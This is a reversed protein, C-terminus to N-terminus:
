LDTDSVSWTNDVVCPGGSSDALLMGKGDPGSVSRLRVDSGGCTVIIGRSAGRCNGSADFTVRRQWETLPEVAKGKIFIDCGSGDKGSQVLALMTGLRTRSRDAGLPNPADLYIGRIRALGPNRSVSIEFDYHGSSSRSPKCTFFNSGGWSAVENPTLPHARVRNPAPHQITTLRLDARWTGGNAGFDWWNDGQGNRFLGWQAAHSTNSRFVVYNKTVFVYSASLSDYVSEALCIDRCTPWEPLQGLANYEDPPLARVPQDPRAEIRYSSLGSGNLYVIFGAGDGAVLYQNVNVCRALPRSGLARFDFPLEAVVAGSANLLLVRQNTMIFVRSPYGFIDVALAVITEGARTTAPRWFTQFSAQSPFDAAKASRHAQGVFLTNGSALYVNDDNTYDTAFINEGDRCRQWEEGKRWPKYVWLGRSGFSVLLGVSKNMGTAKTPVVNALTNPPFIESTVVYNSGNCVCQVIAGRQVRGDSTTRQRSPDWLYAGNPFDTRGLYTLNPSLSLLGTPVKVDLRLADRNARNQASTTWGSGALSASWVFARRSIIHM